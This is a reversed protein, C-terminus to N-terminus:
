SAMPPGDRHVIALLISQIELLLQDIGDQHELPSM